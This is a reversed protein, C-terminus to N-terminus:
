VKQGTESTGHVQNKDGKKKFSPRTCGLRRIRATHGLSAEFAQDKQEWGGTGPNYTHVEVDPPVLFQMQPELSTSLSEALQM